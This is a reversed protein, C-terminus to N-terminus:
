TGTFEALKYEEGSTTKKGGTTLYTNGIEKPDNIQRSPLNVGKKLHSEVINWCSYTRVFNEPGNVTRNFVHRSLCM